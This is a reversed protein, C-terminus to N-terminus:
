CWSFIHFYLSTSILSVACLIYRLVILMIIVKYYLHWIYRNLTSSFILNTCMCYLWLVYIVIKVGYVNYKLELKISMTCVNLIYLISNVVITCFSFFLSSKLSVNLHLLHLWYFYFCILIGAKIWLRNIVFDYWLYWQVQSLTMFAIKSVLAM